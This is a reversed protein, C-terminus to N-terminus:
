RASAGVPRGCRWVERKKTPSAPSALPLLRLVPDVSPSSNGVHWQHFNCCGPGSSCPQPQLSPLRDAGRRGGCRFRISPHRSRMVVGCDTRGPSFPLQQARQASAGSGRGLQLHYRSPDQLFHSRPTPDIEIGLILGVDQPNPDASSPHISGDGCPRPSCHRVLRSCNWPTELLLLLLLLLLVVM